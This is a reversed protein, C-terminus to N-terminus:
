DLVAYPIILEVCASGLQNYFSVTSKGEYIIGFRLKINNIGLHEGTGDEKVEENLLKLLEEPFGKGNDMITINVYMVNDVTLTKCKVYVELVDNIALNHKISNEVFTLICMQPICFNYLCEEIEVNYVIKNSTALRQLNIYNKVSEIELSLPISKFTDRFIYRCYFSLAIVLEKIEEDKKEQAMGYINKLCNLFFHPRIQLQLTQLEAKKIDIEKQYTETKLDVIRDVMDNITTSAVNFEKINYDVNVKEILDGEKIKKMNDILRELHEFYYKELLKYCIPMLVIIIISGIILIIQPTDMAKWLGYYKSIYSLNLNNISTQNQIVFYDNNYGTLYYSKDNQSVVIGNDNIINANSCINNEDDFFCLFGKDGNVNLLFDVDDLNVSSIMYTNKLSLIRFLFYKENIEQVYWDDSNQDLEDIDLGKIYEIIAVKDSYGCKESFTSKYLNNSNSYLSFSSVIPYLTHMKKFEEIVESSNLYANLETNKNLLQKFSYNYTIVSAMNLEIESLRGEFENEYFNLLSKNNEAIKSNFVQMTLVNYGVLFIIIPVIIIMLIVILLSKSSINKIM